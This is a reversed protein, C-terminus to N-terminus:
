SFLLLSEVPVGHSTYRAPDPNRGSVLRVFTELDTFVSGVREGIGFDLHEGDLDIAIRPARLEVSRELILQRALQVGASAYPDAAGLPERVDGGHIWEGLGIGDLRGNARDIAEAAAEYGADLEAVVDLIPWDAREDVDAQNDAPTFGHLDGSAARTLAAACHALVDRVSWGDCVTPLDFQEAGAAALVPRIADREILLLRAADRM